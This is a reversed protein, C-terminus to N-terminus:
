TLGAEELLARHSLIEHSAGQAIIKGGTLVLARQCLGRLFGLDQSAILRAM